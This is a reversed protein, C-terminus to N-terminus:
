AHWSLGNFGRRGRLLTDKEGTQLNAIVLDYRNVVYPGDVVMRATVYALWTGEPSWALDGGVVPLTNTIVSDTGSVADLVHVTTGGGSPEIYAIRRGDPSWRPTQAGPAVEALKPSGRGDAGVVWLGDDRAFVLTSGQPSWDADRGPALLRVHSQGVRVVCILVRDQQVTSGSVFRTFAIRKGDPSWSPYSDFEGLRPKAVPRAISGAASRRRWLQRFSISYALWRGDPSWAPDYAAGTMFRPRAGPRVDFTYLGDDYTVALRGGPFSMGATAFSASAVVLLIALLLVVGVPVRM